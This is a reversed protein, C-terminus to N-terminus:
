LQILLITEVRIVQAQAGIRERAFHMLKNSRVITDIHDLLVTVRLHQAQELEIQLGFIDHLQTTDPVEVPQGDVSARYGIVEDRLLSDLHCRCGSSRSRHFCGFWCDLCVPYTKLDQVIAAALCREAGAAAVICYRLADYISEVLHANLRLAQHLEGADPTRGLTRGIEHATRM